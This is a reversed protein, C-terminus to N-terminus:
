DFSRVKLKAIMGLSFLPAGTSKIQGKGRSILRFFGM